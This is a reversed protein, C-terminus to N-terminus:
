AMCALYSEKSLKESVTRVLGGDIKEERGGEREITIHQRGYAPNIYDINPKEWSEIRQNLYVAVNTAL